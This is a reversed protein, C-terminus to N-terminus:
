VENLGLASLCQIIHWKRWFDNLADDLITSTKM